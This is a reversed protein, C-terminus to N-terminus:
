TFISSICHITPSKDDPTISVDWERSLQARADTKIQNRAQESRTEWSGVTVSHDNINLRVQKLDPHAEILRVVRSWTDTGNKQKADRHPEQGDSFLRCVTLSVFRSFRRQGALCAAASGAQLRRTNRHRHLTGHLGVWLSRPRSPPSFGGEGTLDSHGSAPRSRDTKSAFLRRRQHPRSRRPCRKRRVPHRPRRSRTGCKWLSHCRRSSAVVIVLDADKATFLELM